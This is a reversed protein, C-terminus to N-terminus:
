IKNKVATIQSQLWAIESFTKHTAKARELLASLVDLHLQLVAESDPAAELVAETMMMARELEGAELMERAREIVSQEGALRV